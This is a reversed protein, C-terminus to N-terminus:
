EQGRAGGQVNLDPIAGALEDRLTAPLTTELARGLTGRVVANTICELDRCVYAGRGNARGTPDLRM